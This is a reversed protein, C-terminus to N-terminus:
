RSQEPSLANVVGDVLNGSYLADLDLGEGPIPRIAELLARTLREEDRAIRQAEHAGIAAFRITSGPPSAAVRALDASIVTAVKPYGGATQADALLVVPLGTGPVQISGPVTADSVIEHGHHALHRLPPGELRVGMRDAARSVEYDSSTFISWFRSDFHDHQPGPVVRIAGTSPEPPHTLMRGAGATTASAGIEDGAQLARGHFGGLAARAYTSASGMVPPVTMGSVALVAIRGPSIHAIRLAQGPELILSRWSAVQRRGADDEVELVANGAIAIRLSAGAAAFQQGGDFCEVVPANEENGVLHNAIRMLRRDLVGSWPVGIRRFGFRGADQISAYAGAAVVRLAISM